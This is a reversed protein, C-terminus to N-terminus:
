AARRGISGYRLRRTEWSLKASMSGLISPFAKRFRLVDQAIVKKVRLYPLMFELVKHSSDDDKAQLQLGNLKGPCISFYTGHLELFFKIEELVARDNQYFCVRGYGRKQGLPPNVTGEGDFFGSVYGWDMKM